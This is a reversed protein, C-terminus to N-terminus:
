KKFAAIAAEVTPHNEFLSGLKTVKILTTIKESANAIKMDGGTDRMTNLSSILMALGSSNIFEVNKLNVVVRIKGAAVLEHLKNKLAAADPGGLLSGTLTIVAASGHQSVDLNM